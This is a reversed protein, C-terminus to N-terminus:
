SLNWLGRRNGIGGKTNLRKSGSSSCSVDYKASDALIKLKDLIEMFRGGFLRVMLIDRCFLFTLCINQYNMAFNLNENQLPSCREDAKLSKSNNRNIYFIAYECLIHYLKQM